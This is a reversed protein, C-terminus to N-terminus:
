IRTSQRNLRDCGRARLRKTLPKQPRMKEVRGAIQLKQLQNGTLVRVRSNQLLHAVKRSAMKSFANHNCFIGGVEDGISDPHIDDELADM